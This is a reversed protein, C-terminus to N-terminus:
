NMRRMRLLACAGLLHVSGCMCVQQGWGAEVHRVNGGLFLRGCALPDPSFVVGNTSEFRAHARGGGWGSFFFFFISVGLALVTSVLGLGGVVLGHQAM